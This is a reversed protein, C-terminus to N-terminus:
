LFKIPFRLNIKRSDNTLAVVRSRRVRVPAVCEDKKVVLQLTVVRSRHVPLPAVCMDNKVEILQVNDIDMAIEKCDDANVTIMNLKVVDPPSFSILTSQFYPTM